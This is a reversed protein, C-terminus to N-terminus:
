DDAFSIRVQYSNNLHDPVQWIYQGSNSVNPEVLPYSGGFANTDRYINLKTTPQAGWANWTITFNRNATVNQFDVPASVAIKPLISFQPTTNYTLADGKDTITITANASVIGTM